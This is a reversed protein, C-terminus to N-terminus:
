YKGDRAEFHTPKDLLRGGREIWGAIPAIMDDATITPTGVLQAARSADSLLADSSEEGVIRPTKGIREGFATALARVNLTECGTLNVVDAPSKAHELLAVLMANADRQWIVNVHGMSVDIPLGEHVRRAIDVLVGYRFEVAYNLRVLVAALGQARSFHELIRERGLCSMAYEGVPQVEDTEKSGGSAVPSLGYVNGTSLAVWRSDAYREALRGAPVHETGM